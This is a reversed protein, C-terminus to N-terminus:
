NWHLLWWMAVNNNNLSYNKLLNKDFNKWFTLNPNQHFPTCFDLSLVWRTNQFGAKGCTIMYFKDGALELTKHLRVAIAVSFEDNKQLSMMMLFGQADINLICYKRIWKAHINLKRRKFEIPKPWLKFWTSFFFGYALPNILLSSVFGEECVECKVQWQIPRSGVSHRLLNQISDWLSFRLKAFNSKKGGKKQYFFDDFQLSRLKFHLGVKFKWLKNVNQSM